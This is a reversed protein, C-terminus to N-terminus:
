LRSNLDLLRELEQHVEVDCYDGDTVIGIGYKSGDAVTFTVDFGDVAKLVQLKEYKGDPRTLKFCGVVQNFLKLDAADFLM